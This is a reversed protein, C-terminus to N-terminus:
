TTRMPASRLWREHRLDDIAEKARQEARRLDRATNFDLRQRALYEDVNAQHAEWKLWLLATLYTLWNM